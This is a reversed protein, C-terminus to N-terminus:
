AVEKGSVPGDYLLRYKTDSGMHPLIEVRAYDIGDKVYLYTSVKGEWSAATTLLSKHGLRSGEGRQGVVTGRFRAM